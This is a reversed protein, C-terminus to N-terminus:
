KLPIAIEVDKANGNSPFKEKKKVKSETPKSNGYVEM